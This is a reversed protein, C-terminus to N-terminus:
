PLLNIEFEQCAQALLSARRPDVVSLLSHAERWQEISILVLVAKEQLSLVFKFYFNSFISLYFFLFTIVKHGLSSLHDAWKRMVESADSPALVARALWAAAGWRFYSALYRCADLGKGILCLLQVGEWISGNAILNTAVLKITSQSAGTSQVTAVLCARFFFYTM